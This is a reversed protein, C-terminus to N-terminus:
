GAVLERLIAEIQARLIPLHQEAVNWVKDMEVGHYDHVVINRMGNIWSWPVEPHNAKLGPTLVRAAKGIIQIHRIFWVQTKPDADFVGRGTAVDPEIATIADLIVQLRIQDGRM